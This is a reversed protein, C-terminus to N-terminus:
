RDIRCPVLAHLPLGFDSWWHSSEWCWPGNFGYSAAELDYVRVPLGDSIHITMIVRAISSGSFSQRKILRSPYGRVDSFQRLQEM